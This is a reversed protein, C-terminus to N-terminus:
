RQKRRGRERWAERMKLGGVVAGGAAATELRRSNVGQVQMNVEGAAAQQQRQKPAAAQHGAARAPGDGCTTRRMGQLADLQEAIAIPIM